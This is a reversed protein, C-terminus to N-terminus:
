LVPRQSLLSLTARASGTLVQRARRRWSCTGTMQLFFLLEVVAGSCGTKSLM